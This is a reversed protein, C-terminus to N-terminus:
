IENTTSKWRTYPTARAMLLTARLLAIDQAHVEFYRVTRSPTHRPTPPVGVQRDGIPYEELGLSALFADSNALRCECREPVVYFPGCDGWFACFPTVAVAPDCIEAFM